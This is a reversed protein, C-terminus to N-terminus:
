EKVIIKKSIWSKVNKNNTDLQVVKGESLEKYFPANENHVARFEDPNIAKWGGGKNTKKEDKAM